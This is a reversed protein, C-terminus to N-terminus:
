REGAAASDGTRRSRWSVKARDAELDFSRRFIRFDRYSDTVDVNLVHATLRVHAHRRGKSSSTVTLHPPM